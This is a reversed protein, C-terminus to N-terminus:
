ILDASYSLHTTNCVILATKVRDDINAEALAAELAHVMNDDAQVLVTTFPLKAFVTNDKRWLQCTLLQGSPLQVTYPMNYQSLSFSYLLQPFHRSLSRDRPHGFQTVSMTIFFKAATWNPAPSLSVAMDWFRYIEKPSFRDNQYSLHMRIHRDLWAITSWLLYLEIIMLKFNPPRRCWRKCIWKGKDHIQDLHRHTM